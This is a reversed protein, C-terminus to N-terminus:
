SSKEFDRRMKKYLLAADTFGLSKYLREANETFCTIIPTKGDALVRAACKSVLAAALGRKRYDPDTAVAGLLAYKEGSFLVSATAAVREGDLAVLTPAGKKARAFATVYYEDFDPLPFGVSSLLRYVGDYLRGSAEKIPMETERPSLSPLALVKLPISGEFPLDSIIEKAGSVDAFAFLEEREDPTEPLFSIHYFSPGRLLILGVTESERRLRYFRGTPDLFYVAASGKEAILDCPLTGEKVTEIM